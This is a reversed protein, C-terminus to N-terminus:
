REDGGCAPISSGDPYTPPPGPLRPTITVRYPLDASGIGALLRGGADTLVVFYEWWEPPPEGCPLEVYFGAAVRTMPVFGGELALSSRWYLVATVDTTGVLDPRLEVWIPVPRDPTQAMIPVHRTPPGADPPPAPPPPPARRRAEALAEEIEPGGWSPPIVLQPDFALALALLDVGQPTEGLWVHLVGRMACARAALAGAVGHQRALAVAEEVRGVVAMVDLDRQYTTDADALLEEIRGVVSPDAAPPGAPGPVPVPGVHPSPGGGVGAGTRHAPCAGLAALCMLVAIRERGM